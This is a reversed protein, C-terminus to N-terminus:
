KSEEHIVQSEQGIAISLYTDTDEKAKKEVELEAENVSPMHFFSHSPTESDNEFVSKIPTPNPKEAKTEENGQLASRELLNFAFKKGTDEPEM